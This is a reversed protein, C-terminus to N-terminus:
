SMITTLAQEQESCKCGVEKNGYLKKVGKLFAETSWPKRPCYIGMAVRKTLRSEQEVRGRKKQELIMEVGWFGQWLTSAQLGMRVEGDWLKAFVAGTQNAYARNVTRTKHNRQNTM